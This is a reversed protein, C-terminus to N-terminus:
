DNTTRFYYTMIYEDLLTSAACYKNTVLGSKVLSHRDTNGELGIIMSYRDTNEDDATLSNLNHIYFLSWAKMPGAIRERNGGFQSPGCETRKNTFWLSRHFVVM